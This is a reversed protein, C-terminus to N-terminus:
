PVLDARFVEQESEPLAEVSDHLLISHRLEDVSLRKIENGAEEAPEQGARSIDNLQQCHRCLEILERRIETAALRYFHRVDKIPTDHLAQYLRLSANQFVDEASRGDEADQLFGEFDSRLRSTLRLLRDCAINLLEGRVSADGSNLKAIGRELLITEDSLRLTDDMPM